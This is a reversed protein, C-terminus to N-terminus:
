PLESVFKAQLTKSGSEFKITLKAEPGTGSQAELVGEGFKPHAYRKPPPPPPAKVPAKFEPKPMKAPIEFAAKPAARAAKPKPAGSPGPASASGPAEATAGKPVALGLEARLALLRGARTEEALPALEPVAIRRLEHKLLDLGILALITPRKEADDSAWGRALAWVDEPTKPAEYTMAWDVIEAPEPFFDWQGFGAGLNEAVKRPLASRDALAKGAATCEAYAGAGHARAVLTVIEDRSLVTVPSTTAEDNM